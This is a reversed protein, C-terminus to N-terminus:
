NKFNIMDLMESFQKRLIGLNADNESDILQQIEKDSYKNIVYDLSNRYCEIVDDQEIIHLFEKQNIVSKDLYRAHYAADEPDPIYDKTNFISIYKQLLKILPTFPSIYDDSDEDHKNKKWEDLDEGYFSMGEPDIMLVEMCNKIAILEHQSIYFEFFNLGAFKEQRIFIM